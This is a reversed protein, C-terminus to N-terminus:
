GDAEDDILPLYRDAGSVTLAGMASPLPKVVQLSWGDRAAFSQTELLFRLGSSDIFEVARLDIVLSPPKEALLKTRAHELQGVTAIDIEGRVLMRADAAGRVIEVELTARGLM